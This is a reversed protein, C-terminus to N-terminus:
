WIRWSIYHSLMKPAIYYWCHYEQNRVWTGRIIVIILISYIKCTSQMGWFTPTNYSDYSFLCVNAQKLICILSPPLPNAQHGTCSKASRYLLILFEWNFPQSVNISAISYISKLFFTSLSDYTVIMNMVDPNKAISTFFVLVCLFLSWKLVSCKM